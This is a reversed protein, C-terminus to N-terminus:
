TNSSLAAAASRIEALAAEGANRIMLVESAYTVYRIGREIWVQADSAQQVMLGPIKGHRECAAIMKELGALVDPHDRDSVGLEAALDGRGLTSGDVGDVALIRDINEIAERSEIQVMVLTERNAREMYEKADVKAFSTHFSPPQSGRLGLPPFKVAQVAALAQAATDVHPILVGQAGNDLPRSILHHEKGPPRVVPMLGASLAAQCMEAVRELSFASHEMDIHVYDFGTTALVQPLQLSGLTHVWTGVRIEGRLLAQKVQNARM